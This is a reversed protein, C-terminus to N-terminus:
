RWDLEDDQKPKNLEPCHPNVCRYAKRIYKLESGCERCHPSQRLYRSSGFSPSAQSSAANMGGSVARIEEESVKKTDEQM